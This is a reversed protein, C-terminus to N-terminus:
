PCPDDCPFPLQVFADLAKLVDIIGINLQPTCDGPNLGWLDVNYRTVISFDGQFGMATLTVDRIDVLGGSNDTDGWIWTTDQAATSIGPGQGTDCESQVIYTASPIVDLGRVHVTNWGNPGTPTKFVPNFGLLGDGQVYSAVCSVNADVGSVLLAVPTQGARPTVSLYRSGEAIVVPEQCGCSQNSEICLAPDDCPSTGARCDLVAHCFESGNCFLADDCLLDSPEHLCAGDVCSDVTCGVFDDACDGVTFCDVCIDGAEDCLQGPCADGTGVCTGGSCGDTTTCFLGDDCPAVNNTNSCTNFFCVDTTCLNDDDCHEDLECQVCSNIAESCILPASCPDNAGVCVGGSCVDTTTCFQGDDCSVTNAVNACVNANCSDTTCVNGDDCDADLLCEVCRNNPEDCVAGPCTEGSGVCVGGSCMDTLTCFAGDDCPVTNSPNNCSGSADCLDDTCINGDICDGAGLCEVCADLSESCLLPNSCPDAGGVCQGGSCIDNSTCFSGDDCSVTNNAHQCVGSVCTDNTCPNGNDCEPNNQCETVQVSVGGLSGTINLGLDAGAGIVRTSTFAGASAAISIPTGLTGALARFEFTTVVIGSPPILAGGQLSSLAQYLADGDNAVSGDFPANLGDVGSDNPFGSILWSIPGTNIKRVLEVFAPDWNLIIEISGTPQDLCTGSAAILQIQFTSGAQVGVTTPSWFLDVAPPDVLSGLCVGGSCQDNVTCSQGDNCGGGDNTSVARCLGTTPQCVGMNCIDDLFSCDAPTGSCTGGSCVDNLTCSDGDDCAVTLDSHQCVGGVCTDGTCFIGDDCDSDFNCNVCGPISTGACVGSFCTDTGTCPDADDCTGGDNTPISECAGSAPNCVGDNCADSLFGCNTPTGACTGSSCKDSQTCPDADNCALGQNFNVAICAGTAPDCAGLNCQDTLNSCDITSGACSGGSCVDNLTCIELDDCAGGDNAPAPECAGTAGNCTGVNCEDDLSSCDTPVGGCLGGTCSDSGTCLDNDDCSGGENAPQTECLGSSSNCVGVNCTDDLSSCNVPSGGCVDGSCTDNITCLDNDDCAGVITTFECTGAVCIESTCSNNDDCDSDFVCSSASIFITGPSLATLVGDWGSAGVSTVLALDWTGNADASAVIPFATLSGDFTLLSPSFTGHVSGNLTASFGIAGTDFASFTGTAGWPNDLEVIDFAPTFELTGTNGARPLIELLVDVSAATEDLIAGLVVADVTSGPPMARSVVSITSSAPVTITGTNLTTDPVGEWGSDGAATTLLVDWVGGADSSASVPFGSLLGDYMVAGPVFTGNDDVSGNLSAGFGPEDTDFASFTGTSDWPDGLQVIDTPPSPTFAVTGVSGARPVLEVLITVGITPSGLNQGSVQLQATSGRTVELDIATLSPPPPVCIDNSEDCVEGPCADGSGLCVGAGCTDTVTCFLGDDCPLTNDVHECFGANCTDDTCVNADNCDPDTLCDVTSVTVTGALLTTEAQCEWSSPGSSTSLLVDWVGSADASSLIPFSVLQGVFSIPTDCLFRGDDDVVGNLTSSFGPADSDFATFTGGTPWLDNIQTIDSPPSPTFTLTGTNGGQPVLEVLITIGFTNESSLAGSVVVEGATGAALTTDAVSLEAGRADTSVAVGFLCVAYLIRISRRQMKTM